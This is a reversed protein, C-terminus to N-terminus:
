SLLWGQLKQNSPKESIKNNRERGEREKKEKKGERERCSEIERCSERKREKQRKRRKERETEKEKERDKEKEIERPLERGEKEIKEGKKRSESLRVKAIAQIRFRTRCGFITTPISPLM